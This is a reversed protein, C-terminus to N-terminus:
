AHPTFVESLREALATTTDVTPDVAYMLAVYMMLEPELILIHKLRESSMLAACLSICAALVKADATTLNFPKEELAKVEEILRDIM